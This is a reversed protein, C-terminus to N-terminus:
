LHRMVLGPAPHVDQPQDELSPQNTEGINDTAVVEATAQLGERARQQAIFRAYQIKDNQYRKITSQMLERFKRWSEDNFEPRHLLTTFETSFREACDEWDLERINQLTLNTPLLQQLLTIETQHDQEMKCAESLIRVTTIYVLYSAPPLQILEDQNLSLLDLLLLCDQLLQKEQALLPVPPHALRDQLAIRLTSKNLMAQKQGVLIPIPKDGFLIALIDKIPLGFYIYEPETHVHDIDANADQASSATGARDETSPVTAHDLSKQTTPLRLCFYKPPYLNPDIIMGGKDFLVERVNYVYQSHAFFVLAEQINDCYSYVIPEKPNIKRTAVYYKVPSGHYTSRVIETNATLVRPRMASPVAFMEDLDHDTPACLPFRGFNGYYQANIVGCTFRVTTSQGVRQPYNTTPTTYRQYDTATEEVQGAFFCVMQHPQIPKASQSLCLGRGVGPDGSHYIVLDPQNAWFSDLEARFAASEREINEKSVKVGMEIHSSLCFMYDLKDRNDGIVRALTADGVFGDCWTFRLDQPLSEIFKAVSKSEEHYTPDGPPCFAIKIKKTRARAPVPFLETPSSAPASASAAAESAATEKSPTNRQARHSPDPPITNHM